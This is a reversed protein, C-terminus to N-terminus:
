IIVKKPALLSSNGRCKIEIKDDIVNKFESQLGVAILTFSGKIANEKTLVPTKNETDIYLTPLGTYAVSVINSVSYVSNVEEGEDSAFVSSAICYYYYIGKTTFIPTTYEPTEVGEGETLNIRSNYSGDVSGYWKYRVPYDSTEALCSLTVTGGHPAINMSVPQKIFTPAPIIDKIYKADIYAIESTISATKIGGDGNDNITNTIVCYYGNRGSTSPAIKYIANVANEIKIGIQSNDNVLYWQYSLEGEDSVGAIVALVGTGPIVVTVDSPQKIISPKQASVCELVTVTIRPSVIKKESSNLTNKIVCYYYFM